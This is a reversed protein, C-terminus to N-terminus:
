RWKPMRYHLIFTAAWSSGIQSPWIDPCACLTVAPTQKRWWARERFIRADRAKVRQLQADLIRILRSQGARVVALAGGTRM